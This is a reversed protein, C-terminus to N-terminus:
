DWNDIDINDTKPHAAYRQPDIGATPDDDDVVNRISRVNSNSDRRAAGDDGGSEADQEDLLEYVSRILRHKRPTDLLNAVSFFEELAERLVLTKVPAPLKDLIRMSERLETLRKRDAADASSASADVQGPNATFRGVAEAERVMRHTEEAQVDAPMRDWADFVDNADVPSYQNDLREGIKRMLAKTDGIPTGEAELDAFVRAMMQQVGSMGAPIKQTSAFPGPEVLETPEGGDEYVRRASGPEWQLGVDLKDLTQRSPGPTGAAEIRSQTTDSPGGASAVAQQSLGLARRRSVVVEALHDLHTARMGDTQGLIKPLGLGFHAFM